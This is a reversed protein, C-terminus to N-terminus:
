GNRHHINFLPRLYRILSKEVSRYDRTPLVYLQVAETLRECARHYWHDRDGEIRAAINKASGIYLLHFAGTTLGDVMPGPYVTAVAYVGSFTPLKWEDDFRSFTAHEMWYRFGYMTLNDGPSRPRETYAPFYQNGGLLNVLEQFECFDITPDKAYDAITAEHDPHVLEM